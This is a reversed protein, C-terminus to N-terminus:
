SQGDCKCIADVTEIKGQLGQIWENKSLTISGIGLLAVVASGETTTGQKISPTQFQGLGLIQFRLATFAVTKVSLAELGSRYVLSIEAV